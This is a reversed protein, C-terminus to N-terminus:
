DGLRDADAWSTAYGTKMGSGQDQKVNLAYWSAGSLIPEDPSAAQSIDMFAMLVMAADDAGEAALREVLNTALSIDLEVDRSADFSMAFNQGRNDRELHFMASTEIRSYLEHSVKLELVVAELQYDDNVTVAMNLEPVVFTDGDPMSLPLTVDSAHARRVKAM